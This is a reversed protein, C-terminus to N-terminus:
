QRSAQSAPDSAEFAPAGFVWFKQAIFLLVAIVLVLLGQVLQHPYRLVDVFLVLMGFNLAYAIAYAVWYRAYAHPASGQFSFTWGKNMMFTQTVGLAFTVTMALKPEVGLHTLLVYAGYLLVNSLLGVIAYRSLQARVSRGKM